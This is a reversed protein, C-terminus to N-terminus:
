AGGLRQAGRAGKGRAPPRARRMGGGSLRQPLDVGQADEVAVDPGVVHEHGRLVPAPLHHTVGTRALIPASTEPTWAAQFGAGWSVPTRACRASSRRPLGELQAWGGRNHKQGARTRLSAQLAARM